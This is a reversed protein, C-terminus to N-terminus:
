HDERHPPLNTTVTISVPPSTASIGGTDTAVATLTYAGQLVNTWYFSPTNTKALLTKGSLFQVNAIPNTFYREITAIYINAPALYIAGSDPNVIRVLPPPPLVVTVKVPASTSSAGGNDTAVATLTYTAPAVNSWTLCYFTHVEGEGNTVAMGSTLTGLSTTGQFFQVKSVTGDPDKATACISITAPAYFGAGNYPQVIGVVPPLNSVVSFQVPASTTMAGGNDTAIATLTYTGLAVNSWTLCYSTQQIPFVGHKNTILIPGPNTVVGLSKGNEFLQVTLVSGDPDFSSACVQVNSPGLVLADEGPHSIRVLPPLNTVVSISVPASTVTLGALDTAQATLVYAGPLANSWTFCTHQTHFHKDMGPPLSNSVVGLVTSGALFKVQTVLDTFGGSSTCIHIPQGILFAAGDQPTIIEVSPPGNSVPSPGPKEQALGSTACLALIM